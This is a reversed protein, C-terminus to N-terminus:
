GNPVFNLAELAYTNMFNTNAFRTARLNYTCNLVSVNLPTNVTEVSNDEMMAIRISLGSQGKRPTDQYVVAMDNNWEVYVAITNHGSPKWRIGKMTTGNDSEPPYIHLYPQAGLPCPVTIIYLADARITDYDAILEAQKETLLTHITKFEGVVPLSLHTLDLIAYADGVNIDGPTWTPIKRVKAPDKRLCFASITGGGPIKITEPGGVESIIHGEEISYDNDSNSPLCDPLRHLVAPPDNIFIAMPKARDFNAKKQFSMKKKKNNKDM